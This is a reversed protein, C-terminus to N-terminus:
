FPGHQFMKSVWIGSQSKRKHMYIGKEGKKFWSKVVDNDLHLTVTSAILPLLGQQFVMCVAPPRLALPPRM